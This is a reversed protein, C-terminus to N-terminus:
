RDGLGYTAWSGVCPNGMRPVGTNMMFLAPSHNNSETHFSKIFAMKDVHQSLHPFLDSVWAGSEGYQNFAFPSKAMLGVQKGFFGTNADFGDLSKGHYKELAPKYDWTDVQSPGGNMFLWIVSKAKGGFHPFRADMPNAGLQVKAQLAAPQMMSSLAVLGLGGGCHQLFDRRTSLPRKM